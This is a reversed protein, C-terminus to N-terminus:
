RGNNIIDRLATGAQGYDFTFGADQLRQSVARQGDLLLASMEGLALRLVLAPAAMFSPRSLVVGLERVFERNTMISPATLNYVGSTEKHDLLFAIAKVEDLIHIWPFWQQGDGFPGGVFMKFPTLIKPLAGGKSSLVIGTRIIVLRTDDAVPQVAQEWQVCVDAPFYDNAPASTETLVENGQNGYYGVASAQIVVAPKSDAAKVAEVVAKSANIRSEIIVRKREATWRSDGISAGALNVIASTGDVLDGWGEATRADWKVLRVTEHLETVRQPSRTLVIVEHGDVSLRKSLERGILGSGGTIIVRM